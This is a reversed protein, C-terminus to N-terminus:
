AHYLAKKFSDIGLRKTAALFTEEGQRQNQYHDLLRNIASPVEEAAFGPGANSGITASEDAAGGIIIQYYEQGAKDLGLIGINAVHHHGCANICGSINITLPGLQESDARAAIALSLNQSIPISRATALSCYDLGPCAIIDTAQNYNATVLNVAALAQWLEYCHGYAVSSFVLNQRHTVRLEGYNYRDALDAVVRMQEATMDGPIGGIPKLSIMVIRHEPHRHSLVNQRYWKQYALDHKAAPDETPSKAVFNPQSFCAEIRKLEADINDYRSYDSQALDAECEARYAEVGLDDLLIKIRAKYKNDRRGHRNYVRMMSELTPILKDIKINAFVQRALRPTRGQGGGAWLDAVAQRSDDWHLQIAIDHLKLAARDHKAGSLAIKFKRPLFSFEPHMSSWQRILECWPRPDIDEDVAVGALPDTTVNRICNGSTQLAHMDLKALDHLIDAAENLKIWNFQINQRTTFHGYGRDYRDAISALGRLQTSSLEGYPIAVRLMYAHLQLYLGNMLRLPLFEDENLAGTLRREIQDRFEDVRAMVFKRDYHDYHYM